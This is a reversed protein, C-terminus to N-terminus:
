TTNMAFNFCHSDHLARFSHEERDFDTLRAEDVFFKRKEIRRENENNSCLVIYLPLNMLLPAPLFVRAQVHM